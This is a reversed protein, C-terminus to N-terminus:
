SRALYSVLDIRLISGIRISPLEGRACLRYITERNVALLAAAERPSVLKGAFGQLV